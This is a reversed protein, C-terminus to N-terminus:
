PGQALINLCSNEKGGWGSIFLRIYLGPVQKNRAPGTSFLETSHFITHSM